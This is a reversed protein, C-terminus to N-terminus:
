HQRLEFLCIIIEEDTQNPWVEKRFEKRWRFREKEEEEEEDAQDEYTNLM